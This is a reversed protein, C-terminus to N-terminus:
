PAAISLAGLNGVDCWVYNTLDALEEIVGAAVNSGAGADDTLLDDDEAFAVQGVSAQVYLGAICPLRVEGARLVVVNADTGDGVNSGRFAVAVGRVPSTGAADDATQAHGSTTDIVCMSGEYITAGNEIIHAQLKQANDNRYKWRTGASLTM